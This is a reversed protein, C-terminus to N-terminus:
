SPRRPAIQLDLGLAEFLALLKDARVTTKGAEVERVFRESCGALAALAPQTLGLEKRRQEVTAGLSAAEM